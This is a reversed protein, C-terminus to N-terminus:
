VAGKVYVDRLIQRVRDLWEERLIPERGSPKELIANASFTRIAQVHRDSVAVIKLNLNSRQLTRIMDAVRQLRPNVVVLDIKLNLEKTISIAQKCDLGPVVHCGADNFIGALWFAFGFDKEVILVTTGGQLDPM